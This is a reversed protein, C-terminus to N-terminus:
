PRALEGTAVHTVAGGVTTRCDRAARHASVTTGHGVVELEGCRKPGGARKAAILTPPPV